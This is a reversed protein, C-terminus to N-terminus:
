DDSIEISMRVALDDDFWMRFNTGWVNNHLNIHMGGALEPLADDFLLLRPEGPAVLPTDPTNLVFGGDPGHYEAASVAHLSRNGRSVVDRPDVAVGLKRLRWRAPDLVLPDFSVWTAEPLRDADKGTWSLDIEIRNSDARFRYCLAIERPAGTQGAFEEPYALQVSIVTEGDLETRSLGVCEPETRTHRRPPSLREIGPKGFDAAAWRGHVDLDRHYDVFWADYDAAAFQEYRFVGLRHDEDSISRGSARNVLGSIAGHSDFRVSFPGADCWEGPAFPTGRPVPPAGHDALADLAAELHDGQLTAVADIVYGRQEEWSSELERYGTRGQRDAFKVQLAVEPPNQAADVHDHARAATFAPKSWNVYDPLYTKVDRGWTHEPVLLIRRVFEEDEASGAILSGTEIWGTRLAQLRRFNRVQLPDSGAGHIWTDGIEARIRPLTGHVSLLSSAFDDMRGAVITANPYRDALNAFVGRISEADPPGHNDGTQAFFIAHDLGPIVTATDYNGYEGSYNIIVDSRDPAQWVFALPVDPQASSPNVGLHLYRVGAEALLPVIGITHGPVDTMKAAITSRGFRDDLRRGISLGARFMAPDMLESHTTFPLAHWAVHGEAIAAELDARDSPSGARLHEDILWSGTTWVFRAAGGEDALERALRIARPIYDAHYANRVTRALDTFGVDLHTKFVVTVTRVSTNM